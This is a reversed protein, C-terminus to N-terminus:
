LSEIENGGGVINESLTQVFQLGDTAVMHRQWGRVNYGTIEDSNTIGRDGGITTSGIYPFANV